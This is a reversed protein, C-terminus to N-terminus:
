TGAAAPLLTLTAVSGAAAPEVVAYTGAPLGVLAVDEREGPAIAVFGIVKGDAPVEGPMPTGAMAPLQLLHVIAPDAGTNSGSVVLVPPAAIETTQDFAVPAEDTLTFGVVAQDGEPRPPLLQEQDIQLEGDREVLFWRADVYQYDGRRYSVDVAARGDEYTAVDGAALLTIPGLDLEPLAAEAAQADALGFSTQLLNPTVLALAAGLDGANWCAVFNAVAAVARDAVEVSAPTAVLDAAARPTAMGGEAGATAMAPPPVCEGVPMAAPSAEQAVTPAFGAGLGVAAAVLLAQATLVARRRPMSGIPALVASM